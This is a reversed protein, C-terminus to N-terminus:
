SALWARIIRTVSTRIAAACLMTRWVTLCNARRTAWSIKGAFSALKGSGESLKKLDDQWLADNAYLDELAWQSEVPIENREPIKKSM